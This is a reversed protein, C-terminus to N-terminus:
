KELVLITVKDSSFGTYSEVAALIRLRVQAQGAGRCSVVVGTDSILVKTEGVGESASLLAALREESSDPLTHGDSKGPLLMLLIGVSLIIIPWKLTKIKSSLGEGM